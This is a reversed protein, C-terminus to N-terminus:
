RLGNSRRKAALEPSPIKTDIGRSETQRTLQPQNPKEYFYRGKRELGRGGRLRPTPDPVEATSHFPQRDEPDPIPPAKMYRGTPAKDRGSRERAPDYIRGTARGPFALAPEPPTLLTVATAILLSALLPVLGLRAIGLAPPAGRRARAARCARAVEDRCRRM